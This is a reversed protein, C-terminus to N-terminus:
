EIVQLIDDTNFYWENFSEDDGLWGPRVMNVHFAGIEAIHEPSILGQQYAELMTQFRGDKWLWHESAVPYRFITGAVKFWVEVDNAKEFGDGDVFFVVYDNYIGFFRVLLLPTGFQKQWDQKVQREIESSGGELIRPEKLNGEKGDCGTFVMALLLAALVASWAGDKKKTKVAM